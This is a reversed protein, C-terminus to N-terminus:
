REDQESRGDMKAGCRPCYIFLNGNYTTERCVSCKYEVSDTDGWIGGRLWGGHKVEVVDATPVYKVIEQANIYCYQGHSYKVSAEYIERCAMDDSKAGEKEGASQLENMLIEADIYRAM